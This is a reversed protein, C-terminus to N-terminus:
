WSADPLEDGLFTLCAACHWSDFEGCTRALLADLRQLPSAQGWGVRPEWGRAVFLDEGEADVEM